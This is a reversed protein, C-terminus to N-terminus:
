RLRWWIVLAAASLSVFLAAFVPLEEAVSYGARSVGFWMNVATGILWLPIFLLAGVAMGSSPAVTRGVILCIGMLILGAIIVMVTHM